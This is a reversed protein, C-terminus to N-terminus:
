ADSPYQQVTGLAHIKNLLTCLKGQELETAMLVYFILFVQFNLIM